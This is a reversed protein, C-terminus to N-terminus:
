RAQPEQWKGEKWRDEKGTGGSAQGERCHRCRQAGAGEGWCKAGRRGAKLDKRGGNGGVKGMCSQSQSPGQEPQPWPGHLM